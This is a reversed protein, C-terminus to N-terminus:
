LLKLNSIESEVEIAVKKITASDNANILGVTSM